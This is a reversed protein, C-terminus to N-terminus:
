KTITIKVPNSRFLESRDFNACFEQVWYQEDQMPTSQIVAPNMATFSKYFIVQVYYDGPPCDPGGHLKSRIWLSSISFNLKTGVYCSTPIFTWDRSSVSARSGAVFAILDCLYKKDHDYIALQAPLPILSNFFPNYYYNGSGSNFFQIDAEVRQGSQILTKDVTLTAHGITVGVRNPMSNLDEKEIFSYNEEGWVPQLAISLLFFCPFVPSLNMKMSKFALGEILITWRHKGAPAVL